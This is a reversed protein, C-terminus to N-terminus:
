AENVAVHTAAEFADPDDDAAFLQMSAQMLANNERLLGVVQNIKFYWCFIERILLFAIVAVGCVIVLERLGLGEFNM